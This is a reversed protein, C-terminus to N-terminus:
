KPIYPGSFYRAALFSYYATLKGKLLLTISPNIVNPGQWSTQHSTELSWASSSVSSTSCSQRRLARTRGGEKEGPSLASGVNTPLQMRQPKEVVDGLPRLSERGRTNGALILGHAFVSTSLSSPEDLGWLLQSSTLGLGLKDAGVVPVFHRSCAHKKETPAM